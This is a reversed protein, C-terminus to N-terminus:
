TGAGNVRSMLLKRSTWWRTYRAGNLTYMGHAPTGWPDM